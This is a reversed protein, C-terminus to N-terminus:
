RRGNHRELMEAARGEIRQWDFNRWYADRFWAALALSLVLDDHQGERWHSYSDHATKPDISVRFNQLEAKLTPWLELGEAVQLRGTQMLAQVAAVLDRKPTRFGSPVRTVADGGHISVAVVPVGAQRFIDVVAAGVGTADVVLTYGHTALPAERLLAAIHSVMEPYSRGRMRELHRLHVPPKSPWPSQDELLIHELQSPELDAPSTWGPTIGRFPNADLLASSTFLQTELVVIATYDRSQGLDVGVTYPAEIEVNM